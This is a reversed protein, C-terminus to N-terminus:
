RVEQGTALRPLFFHRPRQVYITNAPVDRSVVSGPSIIAGDGIRVGFLIICGASIWVDDGIVTRKTTDLREYGLIAHRPGLIQVYPGTSLREGIELPGMVINHVGFWCGSGVRIDGAGANWINYADTVTRTGVIARFPSARDFRFRYGFEALRGREIHAVSDYARKCSYYFRKVVTKVFTPTVSELNKYASSRSV